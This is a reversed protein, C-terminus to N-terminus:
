TCWRAPLKGAGYGAASRKESNCIRWVRRVLTQNILLDVTSKNGQPHAFLQQPANPRRWYRLLSRWAFRTGYSLEAGLNGTTKVGRTLVLNTGGAALKARQAVGIGARATVHGNERGRGSM